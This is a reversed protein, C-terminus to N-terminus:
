ESKKTKKGKTRYSPGNIPLITCHHLLRDLVAAAVVDDSLVEGWEEFSKNSTLVISGREYRRSILQFFLNARQKDMTQYGLEDLVLLDLRALTSLKDNLSRDVLAAVLQDMLEVMTTFLVRKRAACAKIGLAIALHTKGTGPPGVFCVNHGADLFALEGLERVMAEDLTPQFPFDFAELTKLSPFRAKALKANISRDAKDVLEAEALRALYGTFTMKAKVANDAEREFVQAMTYLSLKKLNQQLQERDTM